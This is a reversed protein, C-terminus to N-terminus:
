HRKKGKLTKSRKKQEPRSTRPPSRSRSCSEMRPRPMDQCVQRVLPSPSRSERYRSVPSFSRREPSSPPSVSAREPSCPSIAEKIAWSVILRPKTRQSPVGLVRSVRPRDEQRQAEVKYQLRQMLASATESRWLPPSM